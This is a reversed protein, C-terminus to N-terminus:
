ILKLINTNRKIHRQHLTKAKFNAVVKENLYTKLNDFFQQGAKINVDKARVENGALIDELM